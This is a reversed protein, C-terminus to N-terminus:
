NFCLRRDLTLTKKAWSFRSRHPPVCADRFPVPYPIIQKYAESNISTNILIHEILNSMGSHWTGVLIDLRDQLGDLKPHHNDSLVATYPHNVRRGQPHHADLGLFINDPLGAVLQDTRRFDPFARDKVEAL